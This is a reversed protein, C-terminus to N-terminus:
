GLDYKKILEKLEQVTFQKTERSKKTLEEVIGAGYKKSLNVAYEGANGCKWVNCAFCQVQNNREDYRTANHQRPIFHGCQQKKWHAKHGCTFCTAIGDKDSGRLRIFVSFIKDLKKKWWNVSKERAKKFAKKAPTETPM